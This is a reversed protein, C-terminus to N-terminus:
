LPIAEKIVRSAILRHMAKETVLDVEHGLLEELELKLRVL